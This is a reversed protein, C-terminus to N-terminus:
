DVRINAREIVKSWKDIEGSLFRATQEPTLTGPEVGQQVLRQRLGDRGLEELVVASLRATVAAPMGAPGMLMYWGSSEYGPLSAAEAVTPVDSLYSLRKPSTVALVRVRGAQQFPLAGNVTDFHVQIQGGLLDALAQQGGKYPV